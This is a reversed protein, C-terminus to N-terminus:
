NQAVVLQRGASRALDVMRKASDLDHAIPKETLVHLGRAFALAAHEVHVSPPTVTLVADVEIANLADELSVFRRDRPLSLADGADRLADPAIDVIATLEFDRSDRVPGNWWTKGMGGVGCQILRLKTTM